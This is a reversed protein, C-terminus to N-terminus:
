RKLLTQADGEFELDNYGIVVTIECNDCPCKLSLHIWISVV